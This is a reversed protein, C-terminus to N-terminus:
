GGTEEVIGSGTIPISYSPHFGPDPQAVFALSTTSSGRTALTSTSHQLASHASHLDLNSASGEDSPSKDDELVMRMKMKGEGEVTIRGLKQETPSYTHTHTHTHTIM